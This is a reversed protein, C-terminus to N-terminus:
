CLFKSFICSFYMVVILLWVSLVSIKNDLDQYYVIQIDTLMGEWFSKFM